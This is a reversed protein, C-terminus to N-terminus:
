KKLEATWNQVLTIPNSKVEGIAVNLLFRKGDRSVDYRRGLMSKLRVEFLVKPAGAEFGPSTKVDVAMLRNSSDQATVYFIEKGDSSWVPERGRATSIQWKGGSAPFPQVYAEQKGSEDSVYALWHGDPSFNGLVETAPTSLFVAPKKDSV